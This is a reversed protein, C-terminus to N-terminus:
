TGRRGCFGLAAAQHWAQAPHALHTRLLQAGSMCTQLLRARAVAQQCCVRASCPQDVLM